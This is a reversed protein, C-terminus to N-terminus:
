EHRVNKKKAQILAQEEDWVEKFLEKLNSKQDDKGLLDQVMEEYHEFVDKAWKGEGALRIFAAMREKIVLEDLYEQGKDTVEYEPKVKM